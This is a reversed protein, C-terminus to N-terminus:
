PKYGSTSLEGQRMSYRGGIGLGTGSGGASSISCEGGCEADAGYRDLSRGRRLVTGAEGLTVTM